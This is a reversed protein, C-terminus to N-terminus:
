KGIAIEWSKTAWKTLKSKNELVEAPVEFYPM